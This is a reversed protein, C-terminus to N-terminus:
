EIVWDSVLESVWSIRHGPFWLKRKLVHVGSLKGAWQLQQQQQKKWDILAACCHCADINVKSPTCISGIDDVYKSDPRNEAGQVKAKYIFWSDETDSRSVFWPPSDDTQERQECLRCVFLCVYNKCCIRRKLIANAPFYMRM